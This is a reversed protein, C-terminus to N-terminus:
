RLYNYRKAYLTEATADFLNGLNAKVKKNRDPVGYAKINYIEGTIREVLFAGSTGADLAYFKTREKWHWAYSQAFIPELKEETWGESLMRARELTNLESAVENLRAELSTSM